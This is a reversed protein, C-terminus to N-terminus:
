RNFITFKLQLQLYDRDLYKNNGTLSQNMAKRYYVSAKIEKTLNYETKGVLGMDFSPLQRADEPDKTDTVLKDNLLLRQVDAGVGVSVKKAVKYGLTPTVQAYYINYFRQVQVTTTVPASSTTKAYPNTKAPETLFSLKTNGAINGVFAVDSEVYFKDSIKTGAAFGMVYGSNLTGYNLGGAMTIYRKKENKVPVVIHDYYINPNTVAAVTKESRDKPQVAVFGNNLVPKPQEKIINAIVPTESITTQQPIAVEEPVTAAVPVPKPMSNRVFPTNGAKQQVPPTGTVIAPAPIRSSPAPVTPATTHIVTAPAHNRVQVTTKDDTRNIWTIVGIAMAISAAIAAMPWLIVRGGKRENEDLQASLKQWNEHNYPLSAKEFTQRVLDDFEKSRM